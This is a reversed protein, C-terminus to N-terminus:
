RRRETNTLWAFPLTEWPRWYNCLSRRADCRSLRRKKKIRTTLTTTTTTTLTTTKNWLAVLAQWIPGLWVSPDQQMSQQHHCYQLLAQLLNSHVAVQDTWVMQSMWVQLVQPSLTAIMTITTSNSTSNTFPAKRMMLTLVSKSLPLLYRKADLQVLSVVLPLAQESSLITTTTTAQFLSAVLLNMWESIALESYAALIDRLTVAL